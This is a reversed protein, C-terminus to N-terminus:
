ANEQVTQKIFYKTFKREGEKTLVQNDCMKKLMRKLRLSM